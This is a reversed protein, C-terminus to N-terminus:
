VQSGKRSNQAYPKEEPCAVDSAPIAMAIGPFDAQEHRLPETM